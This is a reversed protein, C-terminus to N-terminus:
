LTNLTISKNPKSNINKRKIFLKKPKEQINNKIPIPIKNIKTPKIVVKKRNFKQFKQSKWNKFISINLIYFYNPIPSQTKLKLENIKIIM